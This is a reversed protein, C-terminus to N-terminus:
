AGFKRTLAEGDLVFWQELQGTTRFVVRVEPQRDLAILWQGGNSDGPGVQADKSVTNGDLVLGPASGSIQDDLNIATAGDMQISWPEVGGRTDTVLLYNGAITIEMHGPLITVSVTQETTLKKGM